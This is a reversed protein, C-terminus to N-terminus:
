GTGWSNVSGNKKSISSDRNREPTHRSKRTPCALPSCTYPFAVDLVFCQWQSLLRYYRHKAVAEKRSPRLSTMLDLQLRFILIAALGLISKMQQELIRIRQIAWPVSRYGKWAQVWILFAEAVLRWLPMDHTACIELMRRASKEIEHLDRLRYGALLRMSLPFMQSYSRRSALTLLVDDSHKLVREPRGM